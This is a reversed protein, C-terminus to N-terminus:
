RKTPFDILASTLLWYVTDVLCGIGTGVVGDFCLFVLWACPDVEHVLPPACVAPDLVLSIHKFVAGLPCPELASPLVAPTSGARTRPKFHASVKIEVRSQVPLADDSTDVDTATPTPHIIQYAVTL